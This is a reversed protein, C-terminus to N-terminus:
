IFYQLKNLYWTRFWVFYICLSMDTSQMKMQVLGLYSPVNKLIILENGSSSCSHDSYIFSTNVKMQAMHSMANVESALHLICKLIQGLVSPKICEVTFSLFHTDGSLECVIVSNRDSLHQELHKTNDHSCKRQINDVTQILSFYFVYQFPETEM